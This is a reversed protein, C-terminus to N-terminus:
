QKISTTVLAPKVTCQWNHCVTFSQYVSDLTVVTYANASLCELTAIYSPMIKSQSRWTWCRWTYIPKTLKHHKMGSEVINWNYRPPWNYQHIFSSFVVSRDCTVSLSMMKYTLVYQLLNTPMWINAYTASVEFITLSMKQKTFQTNYM